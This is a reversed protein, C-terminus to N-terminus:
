KITSSSMGSRCLSLFQMHREALEPQELLPYGWRAFGEFHQVFLGCEPREQILWNQLAYFWFKAAASNKEDLFMTREFVSFAAYFMELAANSMALHMLFDSNNPELAVAREFASKAESYQELNLRRRGLERWADANQQDLSTAREFAVAAENSDDLETFILGIDHWTLGDTPNDELVSNLVERAMGRESMRLHIFALLVKHRSNEPDLSIAAYAQSKAEEYDGELFEIKALGARPAASSREAESALLFLDKADESRGMRNYVQALLNLAGPHMPNVALAKEFKPIAEEHRAQLSLLVGWTVWSNAYNPERRTVDELHAYAQDFKGIRGLSQAAGNLALVFSEGSTRRSVRMAETYHALALDHRGKDAFHNGLANSAWHSQDHGADVLEQLMTLAKPVDNDTQYLFLALSYPDIEELVHLAAKHFAARIDVDFEIPVTHRASSESTSVRVILTADGWQCASTRCFVEGSIVTQQVGLSRRMAQILSSLNVGSVPESVDAREASTIFRQDEIRSNVQEQVNLIADYLGSALVQGDLGRGVFENPVRFEEIVTPSRWLEYSIWFVVSIAALVPTRRAIEYVLRFARSLWVGLQALAKRYPSADASLVVSEPIAFIVTLESKEELNPESM